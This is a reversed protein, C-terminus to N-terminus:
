ALGGEIVAQLITCASDKTGRFVQSGMGMSMYPDWSKCVPLPRGEVVEDKLILTIKTGVTSDRTGRCLSALLQGRNEAPKPRVLLPDQPFFLIHDVYPDDQRSQKLQKRVQEIVRDERDGTDLGPAVVLAVTGIIGPMAKRIVRISTDERDLGTWRNPDDMIVDTFSDIDSGHTGILLFTRDERAIKVETRFKSTFFEVFKSTLLGM